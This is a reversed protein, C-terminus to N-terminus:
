KTPKHARHLSAVKEGRERGENSGVAVAVREGQGLDIWRLPGMPPSTSPPLWNLGEKIEADLKPAMGHEYEFARGFKKAINQTDLYQQLTPPVELPQLTHHKKVTNADM